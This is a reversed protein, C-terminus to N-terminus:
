TYNRKEQWMVCKARNKERISCEASVEKGCQVIDGERM